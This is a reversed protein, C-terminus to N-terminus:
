VTRMLLASGVKQIRRAQYQTALSSGNTVTGSFTVTKGSAMLLVDFYWGVPVDAAAPLVIATNEAIELTHGWDGLDATIATLSTPIAEHQKHEVWWVKGDRHEIEM